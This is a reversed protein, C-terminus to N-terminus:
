VLIEMKAEQRGKSYVRALPQFDFNYLEQLRSALTIQVAIERGLWAAFVLALRDAWSGCLGRHRGLFEVALCNGEGDERSTMLKGPQFSFTGLDGTAGAGHNRWKVCHAHACDEIM